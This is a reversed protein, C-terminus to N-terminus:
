SLVSFLKTKDCRFWPLHQFARVRQRLLREVEVLLFLRALLLRITPQLTVEAPALPREQRPRRHLRRRRRVAVRRHPRSIETRHPRFNIRPADPEPFPCTRQFTPDLSSEVQCDVKSFQKHDHFFLNKPRVHILKNEREREKQGDTV